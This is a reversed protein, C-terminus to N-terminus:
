PGACSESCTWSRIPRVTASDSTLLGLSEPAVAVDAGTVKSALDEAFSFADDDVGMDTAEGESEAEGRPFIGDFDFLIEHFKEGAVLPAIEAVPEDPM